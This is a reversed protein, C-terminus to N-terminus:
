NLYSVHLYNCLIKEKNSNRAYTFWITFLTELLKYTKALQVIDHLYQITLLTIGYLVTLPMLLGCQLYPIYSIQQLCHMINTLFIWKTLQKYIQDVPVNDKM